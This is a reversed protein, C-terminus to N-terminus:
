IGFLEKSLALYSQAGKSEPKYTTIGMKAINTEAIAINQPIRTQAIPFGGQRCLSIIEEEVLKSMGTRKEYKNFVLAKVDLQKNDRIRITDYTELIHKTGEISKADPVLPIILEDSAALSILHIVSPTPNTDIFIYDYKNEIKILEKKLIKIDGGRAKVADPILMADNNAPIISLNPSLKYICGVIRAERLFINAIGKREKLNEVGVTYSLNGGQADMDILLVKKGQSALHWGLNFCLSTKGVGGQETIFSIILGNM